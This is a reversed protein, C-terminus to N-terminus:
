KTVGHGAFDRWQVFFLDNEYSAAEVDASVYAKADGGAAAVAAQVAAICGEGAIEVGVCMANSAASIIAAKSCKQLLLKAKQATLKLQKTQILSIGSGLKSFITQAAEDVADPLVLVFVREAGNFQKHGLGVTLPVVDTDSHAEDEEKTVFAAGVASLPKVLDSAKTDLPLFSFNGEGPTFDYVESWKNDWVSMKVSKFQQALNFYFFRFCGFRMNKSSEVVPATSAFLLTDCDVCERARYQQCAIICQCNECNRIFISSESPGVFIRCNKCYDIQVQATYDCVYIDCDECDEIIFMQGDISGPEKICVQGKLNSFMYDKPDPKKKEWSFEEKKKAATVAPKATNSVPPAATEVKAKKAAPAKTAVDEAPKSELCGMAPQEAKKKTLFWYAGGAIALLTGGVTLLAKMCLGKGM